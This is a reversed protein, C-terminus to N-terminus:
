DSANGAKKEKEERAISDRLYDTNSAHGDPSTNFAFDALAEAEFEYDLKRVRHVRYAVKGTRACRM